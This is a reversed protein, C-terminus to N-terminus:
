NERRETPSYHAIRTHNIPSALLVAPKINGKLTEQFMYSMWTQENPYEWTTELFMKYNGKKNVIMPWNSYYIEGSIYSLNNQLEIRDFKTRPSYPDTGDIPLQDYDPWVASRISQPVNYWSVQINNDMYVETFSLKLFDFEERAMIKHVTQYLNPVYRRLGNRCYEKSEPDYFCMDDEFFFYYDSDSEQFHKAAYFRGRNIGLNEGTVIHEFGYKKCIKEYEDIIDVDHSNNILIKRPKELWEPHREFSDVLTQFQQPFNFGLVYLSSKSKSDDYIGKPGAHSRTDVSELQATNDLLAQTFKVISGNEDLMYRRYLHPELYAMITFISEETGMYGANLTRNVLQWYTVNGNRIAEVTGGFLGGRCVYEVKNRAYKNIADYNFGHIEDVAAYPFSLFFFPKMFDVMKDLTHHETFYKEYVTFTIGADIWLLYESKFPNWLSANHLMFYKSMVIPNYWELTAQPSDKLWGHEGTQNYWEPTTRIKQTTDWFEGYMNKIDNLEYVVVHTNHRKRKKWIIHEYESQIYILMNNPIDLLKEFQELYKDFSRNQRGINWLGTVVTLNKNFTGDFTEIIETKSIYMDQLVLGDMETTKFVEIADRYTNLIPKGDVNFSTNVLVGIGTRNHMETLLDYLFQHQERTVTQVRATGDIHTIAALKEKYEERVKPCFSMWRSEGEWEFYKNVDELRVVPAFPRYWERHKVKHNLIDKMDKVSPNCLISRNGLARPGHECGNRVVGIIKGNTLDNVLSSINDSINISHEFNQVYDLLSDKDFVEPGSYTIDIVTEPKIHNALMGVTLGCDSPNPSVFVERNQSLLTNFLINLAGGGVIHIPLNSYKGLFPSILKLTNKEFSYQNTAALDVSDQKSVIGNVLSINLTNLVNKIIDIHDVGTPLNYWSDFETLWEERVNGYGALGMLKGPYILNGILFDPEHKLEDIYHGIMSYCVGFNVNQNLLTTFEEGRRAHFLVFWGDNGGGDFSLILAEKHNSQYLSSNAHNIHHNTQIYKESPFSEQVISLDVVDYYCYDYRDIKYKKHFYQHIWSLTERPKKILTPTYFFLSANKKGVLREIEIVEKINGDVALSVSANHSGYIALINSM